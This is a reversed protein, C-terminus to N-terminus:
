FYKGMKMKSVIYGIKKNNLFSELDLFKFQCCIKPIKLIFILM